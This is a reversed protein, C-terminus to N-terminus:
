FLAPSCFVVIKSKIVKIIDTNKGTKLIKSATKGAEDLEICVSDPREELIIRKVLEASERSVHATPILIIQKDQYDLTVVKEVLTLRGKRREIM